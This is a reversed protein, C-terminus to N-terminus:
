HNKPKVKKKPLYYRVYDVCNYNRFCQPQHPCEYGNMIEDNFDLHNVKNHIYGYKRAGLIDRQLNRKKAVKQDLLDHCERRTQNDKATSIIVHYQAICWTKGCIHSLLRKNLNSFSRRERQRKNLRNGKM